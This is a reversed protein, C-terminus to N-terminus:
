RSQRRGLNQLHLWHNQLLLRLELRLRLILRRLCRIQLM